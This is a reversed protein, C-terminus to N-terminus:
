TAQPPIRPSAETVVRPLEAIGRKGIHIDASPIDGNASMDLVPVEPLKTHIQQTIEEGDATNRRGSLDGDVVAVDFAGNGGGSREKAAEEIKRLAEEKTQARATVRHRELELVLEEIELVASDDEALFVKAEKPSM